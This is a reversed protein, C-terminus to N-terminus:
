GADLDQFHRRQSERLRSEKWGMETCLDSNLDQQRDRDIGTAEDCGTCWQCIIEIKQSKGLELNEKSDFDLEKAGNGLGGM